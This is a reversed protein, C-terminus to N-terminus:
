GDLTRGVTCTAMTRSGSVVSIQIRGDYHVETKIDRAVDGALRQAESESAQSSHITLLIEDGKQFAFTREAGQMANGIRELQELRKMRNRFSEAPKEPLARERDVREVAERAQERARELDQEVHALRTTLRDIERDREGLLGELEDTRALAVALDERLQASAETETGSTEELRARLELMGKAADALELERHHLMDDLATKEELTEELSLALTNERDLAEDLQARLAAEREGAEHGLSEIRALQERLAAVEAALRDSHASADQLAADREELHQHLTESDRRSQELATTLAEGHARAEELQARYAAESEEYARRQAELADLQARLASAAGDHDALGRRAEGLLRETEKLSELAQDRESRVSELEQLAM